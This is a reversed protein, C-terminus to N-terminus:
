FSRDCFKTIFPIEFSTLFSGGSGHLTDSGFSRVQIYRADDDDADDDDNDADADDDTSTIVWLFYM